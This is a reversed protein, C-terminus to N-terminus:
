LARHTLYHLCPPGEVPLCHNSRFHICPMLAWVRTQSSGVHWKAHLGYCLWELELAWLGDALSADCHHALKLLSGRSSLKSFAWKAAFSM